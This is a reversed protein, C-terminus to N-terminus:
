PKCVSIITFILTLFALVLAIFGIIHVILTNYEERLEKLLQTTGFNDLYIKSIHYKNTDVEYLIKWIRYARKFFVFPNIYSREKTEIENTTENNVLYHTEVAKLYHPFEKFRNVGAIQSKTNHGCKVDIGVIKRRNLNINDTTKSYHFPCSNDKPNQVLLVDYHSNYLQYSKRKSPLEIGEFLKSNDPIDRYGEDAKLLGIIIRQRDYESIYEPLRDLELYSYRCRFDIKEKIESDKFPNKSAVYEILSKGNQREGDEETICVPCHKYFLHKLFICGDVGFNEFSVSVIFCAVRNEANVNLFLIAPLDEDQGGVFDEKYKISFSSLIVSVNKSFIYDDYMDRYAKQLEKTAFPPYISTTGNLTRQYKALINECQTRYTKKVILDTLAERKRKIERIQIARTRKWRRDLKKLASSKGLKCPFYFNISGNISNQADMITSSIKGNM